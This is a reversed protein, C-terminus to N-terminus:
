AAFPMALLNPRSRGVVVGVGGLNNGAAAANIMVHAATQAEEKARGSVHRAPNRPGLGEGPHPCKIPGPGVSVAKQCRCSMLLGGGNNVTGKNNRKDNSDRSSAVERRVAAYGVESASVSFNALSSRDFGEATTVSWDISVESPAYCETPAVSEVEDGGNTEEDLSHRCVSSGFRKITSNNISPNYNSTTFSEIEFLDSSGDSLATDEEYSTRRSRPCSRPQFVELSDRHPDELHHDPAIV